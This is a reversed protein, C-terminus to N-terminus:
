FAGAACARATERLLRAADEVDTKRMLSVPGNPCRCPIGLALTRAGQGVAARGARGGGESVCREQCAIGARRATELVGRYLERDYPLGGEMFRLAPGKGLACADGEAPCDEAGLLLVTRPQESFVATQLGGAGTEGLTPFAFILDTEPEERLLSVLVACAACVALARGSVFADTENWPAAFVVRDGPAAAGRAEAADLAGIDLLLDKAEVPKKREEATLLHVPKAGLVGPIEGKATCVTVPRGCLTGPPVAGVPALRLLGDEGIRTVLFGPEDMHACLMVPVAARRKGRKKAIVCGLPTVAVEDALPRVASFLLDRVRDEDGSVGPTESLQRLLNWDIM